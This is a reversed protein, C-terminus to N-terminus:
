KVERFTWLRYFCRKRIIKHCSPKTFGKQLRKRGSFLCRLEILAVNRAKKRPQEPCKGNLSPKATKSSLFLDATPQEPRKRGSILCMQEVPRLILIQGILHRGSTTHEKEMNLIVCTNYTSLGQWNPNQQPWM